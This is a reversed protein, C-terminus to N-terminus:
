RSWSVGYGRHFCHPNNYLRHSHLSTQKIYHAMIGGVSQGVVHRNRSRVSLPRHTVTMSLSQFTCVDLFGQQVAGGGFLYEVTQPWLISMGYYVGSAVM